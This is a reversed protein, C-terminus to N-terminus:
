NNISNYYQVFSSFIDGSYRWAGIKREKEDGIQLTCLPAVDPFGAPFIIDECVKKGKSAVDTTVIHVLGKNDLKIATKSSPYNMSRLYEQMRNLIIGNRKDNLWYSSAYQPKVVSCSTNM